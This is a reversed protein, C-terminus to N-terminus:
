LARAVAEISSSSRDVGLHSPHESDNVLNVACASRLIEVCIGCYDVFKLVKLYSSYPLPLQPVYFMKAGNFRVRFSAAAYFSKSFSIKSKDVSSTRFM